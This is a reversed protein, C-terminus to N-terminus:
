FLFSFEGQTQGKAPLKQFDSILNKLEYEEAISVLADLDPSSILLNEKTNVEQLPINKDLTILKINKRLMESSNKIKEKLTENQIQEVSAIINDLCGYEKLLKAATKPGVGQLGQINDSADGVMSLYDIIQSPEVDFKDEVAKTNRTEFGKQGPSTVLMTIRDNIIQSIDKDNSIIDVKSDIFKCALTAIVDDAEFSEKEILNWGFAKVMKRLPEIQSRLEEPMSPRTAKYEPLIKLRDLPPGKDFVFAGYEPKLDKEMTILFKGVALLANSPKGTKTSLLPIAHYGRYIHAYADVLYITDNM